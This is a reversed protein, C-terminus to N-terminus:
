LANVTHVMPTADPADYRAAITFAGQAAGLDGVALHQEGLTM